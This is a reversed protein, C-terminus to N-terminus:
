TDIQNQFLKLKDPFIESMLVVFYNKNLETLKEILNDMIKPSGQRGLTSLIFGYNLSNRASESVPVKGIGTLSKEIQRQRNTKMKEFEYYEHSFIKSYPDYRYADVSENAIMISELHFRGDGVYIVVDVDCMKPATCGLIEGPSLPKAQPLKIKYDLDSLLRSAAHISSAFQITGVLAIKKEDPKFNFKVTEILHSLDIQIDVFIYLVKIGNTIDIPVQFM